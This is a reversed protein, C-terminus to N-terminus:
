QAYQMLMTKYMNKTRTVASSTTESRAPGTSFYGLDATQRRSMRSSDHIRNHIKKLLGLCHDPSGLTAATSHQQAM